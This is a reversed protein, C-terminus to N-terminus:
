LYLYNFDISGGNPFYVITEQQIPIKFFDGDIICENYLNKTEKKTNDNYGILVNRHSDFIIHTDEGKAGVPRIKFSDSDCSIESQESSRIPMKIKFPMEIDGANYIYCMNNQERTVGNKIRSPIKSAEKWEYINEETYDEIYKHKSRAFPTYTTFVFSGEGSYFRQGEREFCLHRVTSVGTLKASWIKYPEEDLILDHIKKDNFVKKLQALQEETLECFAFSIPIERTSYNSCWYLSGDQGPVQMTIDESSAFNQEYKDTNLTRLIGLESSHRSGFTFGIFSGKQEM